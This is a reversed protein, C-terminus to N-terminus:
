IDSYYIKIIGDLCFKINKFCNNFENQDLGFPDHINCILGYPKKMFDRLLKIKTKYEPYISILRYYHGYDMPIILDANTLDCEDVSKSRHARLDVCHAEGAIVAEIPSCVAQTVDLGCSEIRIQRHEIKKRLLYEAFSSRCINGTCVFVIHNINKIDIKKRTALYAISQWLDRIFRKFKIKFKIPIKRKVFDLM